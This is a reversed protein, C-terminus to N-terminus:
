PLSSALHWITSQGDCFLVTAEGSEELLRQQPPWAATDFKTVLVDSIGAARLNKIFQNPDPFVHQQAHFFAMSRNAHYQGHLPLLPLGDGDTFVPNFQWERGYLPSNLYDQNAFRTLRAGSPLSELALIAKGLSSARETFASNGLQQDTEARMKPGLIALVPWIVILCTWALPRRTFAPLWLLLALGALAIALSCLRTSGDTPWCWVLGAAALVRWYIGHRARADLLPAASALGFLFWPMVYRPFVEIRGDVFGGGLCFPAFFHLVFQTMGCALLLRRLARGEAAETPRSCELIITRLYGCFSLLGLPLPWDLYDHILNGWLRPTWPVLAILGSLKIDTQEAPTLPGAFPGLQAPFLPNGTTMWNRLYWVSGFVAAAAFMTATFGLRSRRSLPACLPFLCVLLAVPLFTAKTGAALGALLGAVTAQDLRRARTASTVFYAAALLSASGALDCASFTRTQWILLPSALVAACTLLTATADCGALRALGAASIAALAFWVLGALAVMTDDHYPLAFWGSLLEANLPLYAMFQPMIQRFDGHQLWAAVAVAHYGFDDIFYGTGKTILTILPISGFAIVAAIAIRSVSSRPLSWGGSFSWTMGPGYKVMLLTALAALGLAIRTPYLQGTLGGGLMMFIACIPYLAILGVAFDMRRTSLSAAWRAAIWLASINALCFLVAKM